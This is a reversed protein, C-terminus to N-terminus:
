KRARRKKLYTPRPAPKIAPNYPRYSVQPLAGGRLKAKANAWSTKVSNRLKRVTNGAVAKLLNDTLGSGTQKYKYVKIPAFGPM